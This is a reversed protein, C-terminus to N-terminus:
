TRTRRTRAKQKARLQLLKKTVETAKKSGNHRDPHCLSIVQRLLDGRLGEPPGATKPNTKEAALAQQAESLQCRLDSLQVQAWLFAKDGALVNYDREAKYCVLCNREYHSRKPFPSGCTQCIAEEWDAVESLHEERGM